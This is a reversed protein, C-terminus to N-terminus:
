RTEAFSTKPPCTFTKTPMRKTTRKGIARLRNLRALLRTRNKTKAFSVNVLRRAINGIRRTQRKYTRAAKRANTVSCETPKQCLLRVTPIDRGTEMLAAHRTNLRETLAEIRTKKRPAVRDARRASRKVAFSVLRDNIRDAKGIRRNQKRRNCNFSETDEEEVYIPPAVAGPKIRMSQANFSLDDRSFSLRYTAEEILNKFEYVGEADTLTSRTKQTLASELSEVESDELTLHVRVGALSRNMATLGTGFDILNVKGKISSPDLLEQLSGDLPVEIMGTVIEDEGFQVFPLVVPKPTYMLSDVRNKYSLYAAVPTDFTEPDLNQTAMREYLVNSNDFWVDRFHKLSSFDEKFAWLTQVGIHSMYLQLVGDEAGALAGGTSSWSSHLKFSPLFNFNFNASTKLLDKGNKIWLTDGVRAFGLANKGTNNFLRHVKGSEMDYTGFDNNAQGIFIRKTADDVLLSEYSYPLEFMKTRDSGDPNVRYMITSNSNPADLIYLSNQEKSYGIGRPNTYQSATSIVETERYYNTAIIRSKSPDATNVISMYIKTYPPRKEPAPPATPEVPPEEPEYIVEAGANFNAVLDYGKLFNIETKGSGDLNASSLRSSDSQGVFLLKNTDSDHAIGFPSNIGSLVTQVGTGDFNISRLQNNTHDTFYIKDEVIVLNKFSPAAFDFYIENHNQGQLDTTEISGVGTTWFVKGSDEDLALGAPLSTGLYFVDINSGDLASYALRTNDPETWIIQENNSDVVLDGISTGVDAILTTLNTGDSDVRKIASDTAFYLKESNREYYLAKAPQELFTVVGVDTVKEIKDGTAVLIDAAVSVPLLCLTILITALKLPQLLTNM